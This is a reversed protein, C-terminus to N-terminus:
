PSEPAAVDYYTKKGRPSVARFREGKRVPERSLWRELARLTRFGTAVVVWRRGQRREAEWAKMNPGRMSYIAM